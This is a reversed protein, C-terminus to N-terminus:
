RGRDRRLREWESVVVGKPRLLLPRNSAERQFAAGLPRGEDEGCCRLADQRASTACKCGTAYMSRQPTVGCWRPRRNRLFFNAAAGLPHEPDTRPSDIPRVGLEGLNRRARADLIEAGSGSCLRSSAHWRMAPMWASQPSATPLKSSNRKKELNRSESCIASSTAVGIEHTADQVDGFCADQAAILFAGLARSGFPRRRRLALSGATIMTLRRSTSNGFKVKGLIVRDGSGLASDCASSASFPARRRGSVRSSGCM